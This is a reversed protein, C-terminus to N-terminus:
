GKYVDTGALIPSLRIASCARLFRELCWIWASITVSSADRPPTVRLTRCAPGCPGGTSSGDAAEFIADARPDSELIV